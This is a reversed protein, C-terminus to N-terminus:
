EEGREESRPGMSATNRLTGAFRLGVRRAGRLAAGNFRKRNGQVYAEAATEGREESRPGMSAVIARDEWFEALDEGREESRPGMSAKIGALRESQAELEGREESRPGMSAARDPVVRADKGTEGREESRPGMSAPNACNQSAAEPRREASRPARGWQLLKKSSQLRASAM